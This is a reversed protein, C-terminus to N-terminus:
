LAGNWVAQFTEANLVLALIVQPLVRITVVPRVM